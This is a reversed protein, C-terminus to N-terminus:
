RKHHTRKRHKRRKNKTKNPRSTKNPRCRRSIGRGNTGGGNTNTSTKTSPTVNVLPKLHTKLAILRDRIDCKIKEMETNQQNPDMKYVNNLYSYIEKVILDTPTDIDIPEDDDTMPSTEDAATIKDWLTPRRRSPIPEGARSASVFSNLHSDEGIPHLTIPSNKDTSDITISIYENLKKKVLNQHTEIQAKINNFTNDKNQIDPNKLNTLLQTLTTDFLTYQRKQIQLFFQKLRELIKRIYDRMKRIDDSELKSILNKDYESLYSEIEILISDINIPSNKDDSTTSNYELTNGLHEDLEDLQDGLEDLKDNVIELIENFEGYITIYPELNPLLQKLHENLKELTTHFITYQRRKYRNQKEIPKNFLNSLTGSAIPKEKPKGGSEDEM